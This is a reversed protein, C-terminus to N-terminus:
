STTITPRLARVSVRCKTQENGHRFDDDFDGRNDGVYRAPRRGEPMEM